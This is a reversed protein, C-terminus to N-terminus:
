GAENNIGWSKKLFERVKESEIWGRDLLGLVRDIRWVQTKIRELVDDDHVMLEAYALLAALPNRIEDVLIALKVINDEIQRFAIKKAKEADIAKAKIAINNTVSEFFEKMELSFRTPSHLVNFGIIDGNIILPAILCNLEKKTYFPCARDREEPM